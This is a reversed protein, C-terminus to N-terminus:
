YRGDEVYRTMWLCLLVAGESELWVRGGCRVVHGVGAVDDAAM